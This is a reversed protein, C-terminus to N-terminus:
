EPLVEVILTSGKVAAVVMHAGVPAEPGEAPWTGDDLRV